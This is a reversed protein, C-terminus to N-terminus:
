KKNYIYIYANPEIDKRIRVKEAEASSQTNFSGLSILIKNRKKEKALIIQADIGRAKFASVMKEADKQSNLSAVIVEYTTGTNVPKAQISAKLTDRPKDVDFGQESLSQIITDAVAISDKLTKPKTVPIVVKNNQKKEPKNVLYKLTDPSFFYVAAVGALVIATLLIFVPFKRKVPEKNQEIEQEPETIAPLENLIVPDWTPESIKAKKLEKVPKLGFNSADHQGNKSAIFSYDNNTKHIEGLPHIEANQETNLQNQIDEAFKEIFHESSGLSIHKQESIYEALRSDSVYETKYDLQQSPPVYSDLHEDYHGSVRKKYFTGLGSVSIEDHKQLLDSIYLAIDM